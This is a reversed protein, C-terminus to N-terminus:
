MNTYQCINVMIMVASLGIERLIRLSFKRNHLHAIYLLIIETNKTVGNKERINRMHNNVTHRSISLREAIEKESYGRVLLEVVKIEAKSFIPAKVSNDPNIM